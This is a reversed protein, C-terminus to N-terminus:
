CMNYLASSTDSGRLAGGRFSPIKFDLQPVTQGTIPSMKSVVHLKSVHCM